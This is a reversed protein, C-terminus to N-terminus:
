DQTADPSLVNPANLKLMMEQLSEREQTDFHSMLRAVWAYHRPLAGDLITEGTPTLQIIWARRDNPNAVKSCMKAADMRDLIRTMTQSTVSVGHALAGVSLGDPNRKLLLLVFFQTQSLGSRALNSDFASLMKNTASAWILWTQLGKVDPNGYREAFQALTEYSPLDQLEFM